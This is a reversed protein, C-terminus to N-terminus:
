EHLRERPRQTEGGGSEAAQGSTQSLVPLIREGDRRLPESLTWAPLSTEGRGQGRDPVRDQSPFYFSNHATLIETEVLYFCGVKDTLAALAAKVKGPLQKQKKNKINTRRGRGGRLTMRISSQLNGRHPRHSRNLSRCLSMALDQGAQGPCLTQFGERSHSRQCDGARYLPRIWLGPSAGNVGTVGNVGTGPISRVSLDASLFM